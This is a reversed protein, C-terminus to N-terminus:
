AAAIAERFVGAGAPVRVIGGMESVGIFSPYSFSVNDIRNEIIGVRTITITVTAAVRLEGHRVILTGTYSEDPEPATDQSVSFKFFPLPKDSNLLIFQRYLPIYAEMQAATISQQGDVLDQTTDVENEPNQSATPTPENVRNADVSEPQRIFPSLGRQDNSTSRTESEIGRDGETTGRENLGAGNVRAGTSSDDSSVGDASTEEFHPDASEGFGFNVSGAFIGRLLTLAEYVDHLLSLGNIIPILKMLVRRGMRTLGNRLIKKGFLKAVGGRLRGRVRSITAVTNRIITRHRRVEGVAHKLAQRNLLLERELRRTSVLDGLRRRRLSRLARRQQNVTERVRDLREEADMLARTTARLRRIRDRLDLLNDLDQPSIPYSIVARMRLPFEGTQSSVGFSSWDPSNNIETPAASVIVRFTALAFNGTEVIDDLTAELARFNTQFMLGDMVLYDTSAEMLRGSLRGFRGTRLRRPDYRMSWGPGSIRNGSELRGNGTLEIDFRIKIDFQNISFSQEYLTTWTM